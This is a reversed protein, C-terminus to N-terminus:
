QNSQLKKAITAAAIKAVVDVPQGNEKSIRQYESMRATNVDSALKAAEPSNKAVRIYGDPQEALIGQARATQLDLAMASQSLTLAFIAALFSYMLNSKKM